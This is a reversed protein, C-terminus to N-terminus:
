YWHFYDVKLSKDPEAKEEAHHLPNLKRLWPPTSIWLLWEFDRETMTNYFEKLIEDPHLLGYRVLALKAQTRM